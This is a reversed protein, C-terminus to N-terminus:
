EQEKYTAAAEVADLVRFLNGSWLKGIEEENYGRKVLELTVNFSESADNWGYIGGGGDFDSSIGVHDIGIKDVMYDIHDVFDSVNVPDGNAYLSDIKPKIQTSLTEYQADYAARDTESLARLDAGRLIEFGMAKAGDEYAQKVLANMKQTKEINVYGAFAVTQVVGGNEKIWELQEDDLNRSHDCLARAGSHSAIIPATTIDLIDRMAKKSPHSIDIMMGYKNMEHVVQTGLESLGDNLWVSDKEGTNSDSLQSHGNHALSMYRAGLEWFEKVRNIDEGVPYGNEVGIFAVKKGEAVLKRAEESTVALGMQDPAYEETFWHIADFKAIANQYAKDYGAQDLDGQGTYVSFWVVDLGGENMKPLNVQTNLDQTYNISDTFNSPEIDVHTDMTIVNEHIAQARAVVDDSQQGQNNNCAFLVPLVLYFPIQKKM